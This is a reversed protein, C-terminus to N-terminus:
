RDFHGGGWAALEEENVNVGFVGVDGVDGIM